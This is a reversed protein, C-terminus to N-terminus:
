ESTLMLIINLFITLYIHLYNKELKEKKKSTETHLIVM